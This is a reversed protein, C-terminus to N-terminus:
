EAAKKKRTKPKEAADASAAKTKKAPTAKAPAEAQTETSAETRVEARSQLFELVKEHFLQSVLHDMRGSKELEKKLEDLTHGHGDNAMSRLAIEVDEDTVFIKELRAIEQLVLSRRVMDRAMALQETRIDDVSRGIMEAYADLTMREHSLRHELEHMQHELQENSLTEPIDLEAKSVIQRVIDGRVATRDADAAMVQLNHKVRERLEDVTHLTGQSLYEVWADNVEPKVIRRVQQVTIEFEAKKGALDKNSYDEPYTTTITTTDSQKVGLLGENLEPFFTDSGVELPYGTTEGEPFAEGDVKMTYDITVYDGQQIGEDTVEAFDASRERLREIEADVQEDTVETPQHTVVVGTYEPLTIEPRIAVLVTYTLTLDEKTDLDAIEGRELPELNQERLAEKYTTDIVDEIADQLLAGKNIRNEVMQRPAKGPRFGPVNIRRAHKQFLQEMREELVAPEVTVTVAAISGPRKEVSVEM